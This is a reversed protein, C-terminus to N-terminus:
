EIVRRIIIRRVRAVGAPEKFRQPAVTIVETTPPPTPEPTFYPTPEATPGETEEGFLDGFDPTPETGQTANPDPTGKVKALADYIPDMIHDNYFDSM